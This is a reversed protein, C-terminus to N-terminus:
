RSGGGAVRAALRRGGSRVQEVLEPFAVTVTAPRAVAVVDLGAPLGAAHVAHRLRRKARNRDVAGGVKRGASVTWRAPDSAGGRPRAHLSVAPSHVALRAAFVARVAGSPRLRSRDAAM